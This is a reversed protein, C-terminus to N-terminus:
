LCDIFYRIYMTPAVCLLQDPRPLQYASVKLDHVSGMPQSGEQLSSCVTELVRFALAVGM